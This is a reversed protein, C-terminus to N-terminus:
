SHEHTATSKASYTQCSFHTRLHTAMFQLIREDKQTFLEGYLELWLEDALDGLDAVLLERLQADAMAPEDLPDLGLQGPEVHCEVYDPDQDASDDPGEYEEPDELEGDSGPDPWENIQVLPNRIIGNLQVPVIPLLPPGDDEVGLALNAFPNNNDDAGKHAVGAGDEMRADDM